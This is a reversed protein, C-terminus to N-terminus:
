TPMLLSSQSVECDLKSKMLMAGEDTMAVYADSIEDFQSPAGVFDKRIKNALKTVALFDGVGVGFSM